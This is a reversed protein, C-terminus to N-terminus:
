LATPFPERDSKNPLRRVESSAGLAGERPQWGVYEKGLRVGRGLFPSM